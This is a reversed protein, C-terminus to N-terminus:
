FLLQKFIFLALIVFIVIFVIVVYNLIIVVRNSEGEEEEEVPLQQKVPQPKKYEKKAQKVPKTPKAQSQTKKKNKMLDAVSVKEEGDEVEEYEDYDDAEDSMAALKELLSMKKKPQAPKETKLAQPTQRTQRSSTSEESRAHTPVHNPDDSKIKSLIDLRTNYQEKGLNAKADNIASQVNEDDKNRSGYSLPDIESEPLFALFDDDEVEEKNVPRHDINVEEKMEDRLQRYKNIRSQKEM